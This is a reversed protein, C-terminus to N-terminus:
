VLSFWVLGTKSDFNEQIPNQKLVLWDAVIVVEGVKIKVDKLKQTQKFM